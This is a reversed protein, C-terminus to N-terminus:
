SAAPPHGHRTRILYVTLTASAASMLWLCFFGLAYGTMRSIRLPPEMIDALALPDVFAFFFMTAIAAILFSSWGIVFIDRQRRNLEHIPADDADNGPGDGVEDRDLDDAM